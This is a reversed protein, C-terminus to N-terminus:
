SSCSVHSIGAVDFFELPKLSYYKVQVDKSQEFYPNTIVKQLERLRSYNGEEASDYAPVLFWERLTYKPNVGKMQLSLEEASKAFSVNTDSNNSSCNLAQWKIFWQAWRKQIAQNNTIDKYFSKKLNDITNPVESLERFFITYDVSTQVMLIELEMYLEANFTRLGLKD